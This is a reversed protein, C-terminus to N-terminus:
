EKKKSGLKNETGDKLRVLNSRHRWFALAAWLFVIGYSEPLRVTTLSLHGTQGLVIWGALFVGILVLSGASVYRTIAVIIVFGILGAITLRWDLVLVMGATVAIGKGGKFHLFFPYNHGLVSGFGAYLMWLLSDGEYFRGENFLFTVLLCALVVKLVDGLFVIAGAKKGLVRLANTMGPNGSGHLRIDIGHMKGYLYGTQFMGFVYGILLCAIRVM